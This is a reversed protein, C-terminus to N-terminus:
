IQSPRPPSPECCSVLPCGSRTNLLVGRLRAADALADDLARMQAQLEPPVRHDLQQQTSARADPEESDCPTTFDDIMRTESRLIRAVAGVAAISQFCEFGRIARIDSIRGHSVAETM